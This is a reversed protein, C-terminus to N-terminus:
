LQKWKKGLYHTVHVHDRDYRIAEVDVERDHDNQQADACVETQSGSNEVEQADVLKDSIVIEGLLEDVLSFFNDLSTFHKIYWKFHPFDRLTLCQLHEYCATYLVNLKRIPWFSVKHHVYYIIYVGEKQWM